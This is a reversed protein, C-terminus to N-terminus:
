DCDKDREQSRPEAPAEQSVAPTGERRIEYGIDEGEIFLPV